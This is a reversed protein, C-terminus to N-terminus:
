RAATVDLARRRAEAWRAFLAAEPEGGGADNLARVAADIWGSDKSQRRAITMTMVAAYLRAAHDMTHIDDVFAAARERLRNRTQPDGHLRVFLDRLPQAEDEPPVRLAVDPPVESFSGADSVVCVSGAALARLLAASTEGRVPYRLQVCVDAACGFAGLQELPVRGTLRVREAIGLRAAQASLERALPPPAEGVVLLSTRSRLNAPLAAVADIIRDVRKSATVEGLTTVIFDSEPLGLLARCAAPPRREGVTIGAPVRFLPVDSSQRVRRWSSASHVIVAESRALVPGNLTAERVIREHDPEGRRVADALPSGEGHLTDAISGFWEGTEQAKLALGGIAVDHLVTLGSYRRLLDLMYVHREHNGVHYVFLDFPRREHEDIAQNPRLVPFAALSPDVTSGSSVVLSIDFRGWLHGLLEASYDAIGSRAPPLPSAWAVRYRRAPLLEQTRVGPAISASPRLGPSRAEGARSEHVRENTHLSVM